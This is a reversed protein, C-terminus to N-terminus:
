PLAGAAKISGMRSPRVPGIWAVVQLLLLGSFGRVERTGAESTKRQECIERVGKVAKEEM